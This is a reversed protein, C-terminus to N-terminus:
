FAERWARPWDTTSSPGLVVEPSKNAFTCPSLDSGEYFCSQIFHNSGIELSIYFPTLGARMKCMEGLVTGQPLQCSAHDSGDLDVNVIPCTPLPHSSDLFWLRTTQDRDSSSNSLQLVSHSFLIPGDVLRAWHHVRVCVYIQVSVSPM